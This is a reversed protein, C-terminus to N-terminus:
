RKKVGSTSMAEAAFNVNEPGPSRSRHSRGLEMMIQLPLMVLVARAASVGDVSVTGNKLLRLTLKNDAAIM